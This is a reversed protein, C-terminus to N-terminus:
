SADEPLVLTMIVKIGLICFPTIMAELFDSNDEPDLIYTIRALVARGTYVKSEVIMENETPREEELDYGAIKLADPKIIQERLLIL